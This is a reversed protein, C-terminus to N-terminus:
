VAYFHCLTIKLPNQFSRSHEVYCLDSRTRLLFGRVANLDEFYDFDIQFILYTRLLNNNLEILCVVCLKYEM